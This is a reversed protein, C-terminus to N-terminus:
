LNQTIFVYSFQITIQSSIISVVLSHWLLRLEELNLTRQYAMLMIIHKELSIM